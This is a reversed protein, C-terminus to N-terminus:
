TRASASDRSGCREGGVNMTAPWRDPSVPVAGQCRQSSEGETPDPCWSGNQRRPSATRGSAGLLRPSRAVLRRVDRAFWGRRRHRGGRGCGIGGARDSRVGTVRRETSQQPGSPPSGPERLLRQGLDGPQADVRDRRQLATAALRRPREGDPHESLREFEVLPLHGGQVRGCRARRLDPALRAQPDRGARDDTAVLVDSRERRHEAVAARSADREGPRAPDALRPERELDGPLHRRREGGTDGPDRELAHRDGRRDRVHDAAREVQAARALSGSRRAPRPGGPGRRGARGRCSRAGRRRTRRVRPLGGRRCRPDQPHQGGAAFPEADLALRDPRDQRQFAGGFAARRLEEVRVRRAVQEQVM